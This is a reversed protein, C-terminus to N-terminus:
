EFRSHTTCYYILGNHILCDSEKQNDIVVEVDHEGDSMMVKEDFHIKIIREGTANDPDITSYKEVEFVLRNHPAIQKNGLFIITACGILITAIGVVVWPAKGSKNKTSLNLFYTLVCVVFLAMCSPIVFAIIASAGYANNLWSSSTIVLSMIVVIISTFIGMVSFMDKYANSLAKMTYDTKRKASNLVKRVKEMDESLSTHSGDVHDQIRSIGEEIFRMQRERDIIASLKNLLHWATDLPNDSDGETTDNLSKIIEQVRGQLSKIDSFSAELIEHVSEREYFWLNDTFEELCYMYCKSSAEHKKDYLLTNIDRISMKDIGRYGALDISFDHMLSKSLEPEVATSESDNKNVNNTYDLLVEDDASM